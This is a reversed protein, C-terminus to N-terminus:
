LDASGHIMKFSRCDPYHWDIRRGKDFQDRWRSSGTEGNGQLDARQSEMENLHPASMRLRFLFPFVARKVWSQLKPM